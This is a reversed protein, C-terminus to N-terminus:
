RRLRVAGRVGASPAPVEFLVHGGFRARATLKPALDENLYRWLGDLYALSEPYPNLEPNRRSRGQYWQYRAADLLVWRYGQSALWAVPDAQARLDALNTKTADALAPQELNYIQEAFIMFVRDQPQGHQRLYDGVELMERAPTRDLFTRRPMAGFHVALNNGLYYASANAFDVQNLVCFAIIVAFSARRITRGLVGPSVIPPLLDVPLFRFSILGLTIVILYVMTTAIPRKISVAAVSM